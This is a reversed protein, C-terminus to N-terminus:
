DRKKKMEHYPSATITCAMDMLHAGIRKLNRVCHTCIVTERPALSADSVYREILGEAKPNIDNLYAKVVKDASEQDADELASRTRNFMEDIHAKMTHLEEVGPFDDLGQPLLASLSLINKAYDGIRELDRSIDILTLFAVMDKRPNLMMHEVVKERIKSKAENIDQDIDELDFEPQKGHLLANCAASYMREGESLVDAADEFLERLLDRKKWVEYFERFGNKVGM